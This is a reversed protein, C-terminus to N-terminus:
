ARSVPGQAQPALRPERRAKSPVPKLRSSAREISGSVGRASRRRGADRWRRGARRQAPRGRRRRPQRRRRMRPFRRLLSPRSRRRRDGAAARRRAPLARASTWGRRSLGAPRQPRQRSRGVTRGDGRDQRDGRYGAPRWSARFPRAASRAPAPGAGASAIADAPPLRSRRRRGRRRRLAGRRRRRRAPRRRQLRLPRAARGNMQRDDDYGEDPGGERFQPQSQQFQAQAAMVIRNYHEAHQLYNEASVPDGSAHADRALTMYKDAVHVATGRVKVDPGNSEFSRSLPNPGKRNNNRGRSRRNQNHRM